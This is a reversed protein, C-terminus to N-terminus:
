DGLDLAGPKTPSWPSTSTTLDDIRTLLLHASGDPVPIVTGSSDGSCVLSAPASTTDLLGGGSVFWDGDGRSAGMALVQAASGSSGQLGCAFYTPAGILDASVAFNATYRGAPLSPLAFRVFGGITTASLRYTYAKTRLANGDLGDVLDANLKKVVKSSNVKLPAASKKTKLKLAVGKGSKITTTKGAVNTKGLLLPAGTAAYAGLNAAGVLLAGAILITLLRSRNMGGM